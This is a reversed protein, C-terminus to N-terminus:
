RPIYRRYAAPWDWYTASRAEELPVTGACVLTQLRKELRDKEKAGEPGEWRQLRLNALARPHGGLALPVRHDLEFNSANAPTLGAERLLKLKVGNTFSASPRVMATYGAVCITTMITDARVDPNLVELPVAQVAAAPPRTSPSGATPLPPTNCAALAFLLGVCHARLWGWCGADTATVYGPSSPMAGETAPHHAADEHEGCCLAEITPEAVQAAVQTSCATM